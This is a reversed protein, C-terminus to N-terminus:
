VLALKLLSSIHKNALVIALQQSVEATELLCWLELSQCQTSGLREGFV